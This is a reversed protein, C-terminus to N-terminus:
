NVKYITANGNDFIKTLGLQKDGIRAHQDKLWYIYTINNDKLFKTAESIDLTNLFKQIDVRRSEWPYQTIVLNTQDELFTSKESYASVYATTTYLYMPTPHSLSNQNQPFYPYTLVVGDPQEKLYNLAEIESKSIYAHPKISLYNSLSSITTPITIIIVLISLINRRVGAKEQEMINGLYTGAFIGSFILSYYFFQITNWPVGVQVFFMPVVIGALMVIILFISISDIAFFNKRKRFVSFLSIIRTGFNGIIFIAFVTLYALVAKVWIHGMRYTTMASYMRQWGFRDSLAMMSELFWFPAYTILQSSSKNFPLFLMLSLALSILFGYFFKFNKNKVIEWVSLAFLASLVLLGAYVKVFISIGFFFFALMFNIWTKKLSYKQFFILGALITILSLAFPPNILTSISQQSWFMSEGGWGQGRILSVLWGLSGGFYVFFTSWWAEKVSKRWIYVFKYTLFGISLALIPPIIQFYLTSPNVKTSRVILSMLFDFGIHYNQINQGAFVPMVLGGKSLSGILSIHWIGDHGNAGWFGLGGGCSADYCTGSRVM